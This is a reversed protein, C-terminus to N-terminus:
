TTKVTVPTSKSPAGTSADAPGELMTSRILEVTILCNTTITTTVSEIKYRGSSWHLDHNYSAQRHSLNSTHVLSKEWAVEPLVVRIDCFEEDRSLGINEPTGVLELSATTVAEHLTKFANEQIKAAHERSSNQRTTMGSCRGGLGIQQTPHFSAAGVRNAQDESNEEDSLPGATTRGKAPEWDKQLGLTKRSLIREEFAKTRPDLTGTAVSNAYSGIIQSNYTPTFSGAGNPMGYLVNFVRYIRQSTYQETHFHFTKYAGLRFDYSGNPNEKSKAIQLFMKIMDIKTRAGTYWEQAPSIGDGEHEDDDTEEVFIETDKFGMEKAISTVARSIKGSYTKNDVITAYETGISYVEVSIRCGSVSLTPQYSAIYGKFWGTDELGLNPYGWRYSMPKEAIDNEMLLREIETFTPDIFVFNATVKGSQNTATFEQHYQPPITVLWDQVGLKLQVIPFLPEHTGASSNRFPSGTTM